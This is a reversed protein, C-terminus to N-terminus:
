EDGVRRRGNCADRLRGIGARDGTGDLNAAFRSVRVEFAREELKRFTGRRRGEPEGPERLQVRMDILGPALVQGHCDLIEADAPANSRTVQAGLAAIIGNDVLVGGTEDRNGAPDVLRANVLVLPRDQKKPPKPPLSPPTM